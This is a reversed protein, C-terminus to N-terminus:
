SSWKQAEKPIGLNDSIMQSLKTRVYPSIGGELVVACPTYMNEEDLEVTVGLQTGMESAKNLIYQEIESKIRAAQKSNTITKAQDIIQEADEVICSYFHLSSTIPISLLPKMVTILLIMGSLVKCVLSLSKNKELLTVAIGCLFAVAIVTLVYQGIKEVLRCREYLLSSRRDVTFM